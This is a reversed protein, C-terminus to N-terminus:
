GPRRSRTRRRAGGRLRAPARVARVAGGLVLVSAVTSGATARTARRRAARAHGGGRRRRRRPRARGARLGRAGGRRRARARPVRRALRGGRDAGRDRAPRDAHRARDRGGRRRARAHPAREFWGGVLAVMPVYACAVGIGVGSGTPSSRSPCRAPTARDGGPRDRVRGRRRAARAAPRLPRRGRRQPAGLGFYLLSTLSFFVAGLARGAGFDARLEELFAGYSYAIGFAAFM